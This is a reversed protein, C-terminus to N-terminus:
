RLLTEMFVDPAPQWDAGASSARRDADSRGADFTAAPASDPQVDDVRERQRLVRRRRQPEPSGGGGDHRGADQERVGGDARGFRELRDEDLM